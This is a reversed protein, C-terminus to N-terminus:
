PAPRHEHRKGNEIVQPGRPMQVRIQLDALEEGCFCVSFVKRGAGIRLPKRQAIEKKVEVAKELANVPQPNM